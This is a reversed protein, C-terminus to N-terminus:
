RELRLAGSLGVEAQVLLDAVPYWYARADGVLYLSGTIWVLDSPQALDVALAVAALPDPIVRIDLGPAYRTALTALTEPQMAEWLGQARFATVILLNAGDLVYPLIAEAEKDSKLALVVIRRRHGYRTNIVQVAARLKDPNHAGDLVVTPAHQMVEMRGPLRATHLGARIAAESVVFGPLAHVAAIACAANAIQFDGDMGPTLNAYAQSPLRLAFGGAADPTYFVERGVQWLRANQAQCRQAIIARAEPQQVGSIVTQQPKIIGAKERTIAEITNGLIATHDRGVNTLVAVAAPVVNTADSVGGMGVEVVAVDVAAQQFLYCALAVQAEFMTPPGFSNAAAVQAIAPKIAAFCTALRTTSAVQNDIQYAENLIQLQPSLHLGTKYGAAALMAASMTATSGKGSTGGVHVVPFARQPDGLLALLHTIRELRLNIAPSFRAPGSLQTLDRELNHYLQVIDRTSNSM